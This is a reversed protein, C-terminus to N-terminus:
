AAKRDAECRAKEPTLADGHLGITLWRQVGGRRYKLIYSRAGSAWVRLGLGKIEGDWITEGPLASDVRKKTLKGSM